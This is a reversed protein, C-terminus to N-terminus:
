RQVLQSRALWQALHKATKKWNSRWCDSSGLCGPMVTGQGLPRWEVSWDVASQSQTWGAQTQQLGHSSCKLPISPSSSYGCGLWTEGTQSSVFAFFFLLLITASDKLVLKTLPTEKSKSLGKLTKGNENAVSGQCSIMFNDLLYLIRPALLNM